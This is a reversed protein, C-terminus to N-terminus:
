TLTQRQLCTHKQCSTHLLPKQWHKGASHRDARSRRQVHALRCFSTCTALPPLWNAFSQRPQVPVTFWLREQTKDPRRRICPVAMKGETVPEYRTRGALPRPPGAPRPPRACSGKPGSPDHARSRTVTATACETHRSGTSFVHRQTLAMALGEGALEARSM